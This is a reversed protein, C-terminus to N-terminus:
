LELLIRGVQKGDLIRQIEPIMNDLDVTKVMQDLGNLKWDSSFNEWVLERKRMSCGASDIGILHNSRLIFPFVTTEFRPGGVNGCATVVGDHDMSAIICSLIKGGVADLAANYVGKNLPLNTSNIFENRDIVEKAGLDMLYKRSEIKGTIATVNAGLHSLLNVGISGVGGTAGSVIVKADKMDCKIEMESVALGATLGATGIIMADKTSLKDPCKVAWKSPVRIYESFGGSTNMGLDFGTVIVSTGVPFQDDESKEIVGAADIGPTHPYEKTVGKAGIASLADKYNLSSYEVRILLEGEPLDDISRHIINMDTGHDGKTIELARFIISPVM